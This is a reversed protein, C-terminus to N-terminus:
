VVSAASLESVQTKKGEHKTPTSNKPLRSKVRVRGSHNKLKSGATKKTPTNKECWVSPASVQGKEKHRLRHKHERTNHTLQRRGKGITRPAMKNWTHTTWFSNNWLIRLAHNSYGVCHVIWSFIIKQLGEKGEQGSDSWRKNKSFQATEGKVDDPTPKFSFKCPVKGCSEIDERETRDPTLEANTQFKRQKEKLTTQPQHAHFSGHCTGFSEIRWSDSDILATINQKSNIKLM